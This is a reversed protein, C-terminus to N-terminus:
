GVVDLVEQLKAAVLDYVVAGYAASPGRRANLEESSLHALEPPRCFDHQERVWALVGEVAKRAPEKEIAEVREFSKSRPSPYFHGRQFDLTWTRPTRDPSV